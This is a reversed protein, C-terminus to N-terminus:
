LRNLVIYLFIQAFIITATILATKRLDKVVYTQTHNQLTQVNENGVSPKKVSPTKEQATIPELHYHIHRQDAIMKEQRTKRHKAM